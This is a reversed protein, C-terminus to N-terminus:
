PAPLRNSLYYQLADIQAETLIKGYNEPMALEEYGPVVVARPALISERVYTPDARKALRDLDPGQDSGRGERRHCSACGADQFIKRGQDIM